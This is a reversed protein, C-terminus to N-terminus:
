GSWNIGTIIASYGLPLASTQLVEIGLEFRPPAEMYYDIKFKATCYASKIQIHYPLIQSNNRKNPTKLKAKKFTPKPFRTEDELIIDIRVGSEEGM